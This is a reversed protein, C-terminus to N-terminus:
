KIAPLQLPGLAKHSPLLQGEVSASGADFPVVLAYTQTCSGAGNQLTGDCTADFSRPTGTGSKVSYHVQFSTDDSAAGSVQCTLKANVVDIGHGVMAQTCTLSAPPGGGLTAGTTLGCAALTSSLALVLTLLAASKLLAPRKASTIRM